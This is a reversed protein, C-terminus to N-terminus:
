KAYFVYQGTLDNFIIYYKASKVQINDGTGGGYPFTNGGWSTAWDADARFKVEGESLECNDVYWIHPNKPTQTLAVDDAWNNFAGILGISKYTAAASADYPKIEYSLDSIKVTVTYYGETEFGGINGGGISLSGASNSGYADVWKGLGAQPVLKFESGAKFNAIYTDTSSGPSSRFMIFRYSDINWEPDGFMNGVMFLSERSLPYPVVEAQFTNSATGPVVLSAAQGINTIIRFEVEALSDPALLLNGILIANLESVSVSISYESMETTEAKAAVRAVAVAGAFNRGVSDVQLVFSAADGVKLQDQLGGKFTVTLLEQDAEAEKLEFLTGNDPYETLVSAPYSPLAPDTDKSCSAFLTVLSVLFLLYKIKM